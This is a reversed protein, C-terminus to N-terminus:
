LWCIDEKGLMAFHKIESNDKINDLKIASIRHNDKTSIYYTLSESCMVSTYLTGEVGGEANKHLGMPITVSALVNHMMSLAAMEDAPQDLLHKIYAVRVFRSPPTYDGPLGILGTGEGFPQLTLNGLQQAPRAMTQMGIYNRLNQVHWDYNPSNTMVGITRRHISLGQEDPEIIITEGSRDSVIFHVPADGGAVKEDIFNVEDLNNLLEDISTFCGLMYTIFYIPNINFKDNVYGDYHAFRPYYLLCGMLGHENIGDVFIPTNTVSMSFGAYAYKTKFTDGRDNAAFEQDRSMFTPCSNPLLFMDCTRGLIHKGDQTQWSLSSCGVKM